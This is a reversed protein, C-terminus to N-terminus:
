VNPSNASKVEAPVVPGRTTVPAGEGTPHKADRHLVDGPMVLVSVGGLGVAHQIAIRALRPM